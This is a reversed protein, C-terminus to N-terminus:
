LGCLGLGGVRWLLRVSTRWARSRRWWVEWGTRRMPRSGEQSERLRGEDWRFAWEDEPEEEEPEEWYEVKWVM